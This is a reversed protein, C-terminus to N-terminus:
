RLKDGWDKEFDEDCVPLSHRLVRGLGMGARHNGGVASAYSCWHADEVKAVM